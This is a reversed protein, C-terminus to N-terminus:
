WYLLMGVGSRYKTQQDVPILIDEKDPRKVMARPPGPTLIEKLSEVLGGFEQKLHKPLKQQPIYTTDNTKNNIIKCGVFTETIGLDKVVFHKSLKEIM